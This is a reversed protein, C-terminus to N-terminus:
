TAPRHNERVREILRATDPDSPASRGTLYAFLEPDPLDLIQEFRELEAPSLTAAVNLAFSQLVADLERMGRRARWRLKALRASMPVEDGM